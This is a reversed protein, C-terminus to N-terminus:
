VQSNRGMMRAYADNEPRQLERVIQVVDFESHTWFPLYHVCPRMADFYYMRWRSQQRLILSNTHMIKFLRCTTWVTVM